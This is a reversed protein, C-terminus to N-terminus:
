AYRTMLTKSYVKTSVNYKKRAEKIMKKTTGPKLKQHTRRAIAYERSLENIMRVYKEKKELKKIM